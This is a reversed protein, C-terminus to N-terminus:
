DEPGHIHHIMEKIEAREIMECYNKTKLTYTM